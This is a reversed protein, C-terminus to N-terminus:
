TSTEEVLTSSPLSHSRFYVRYDGNGLSQARAQTQMMGSFPVGKGSNTRRAPSGRQLEGLSPMHPAPSEPRSISSMAWLLFTFSRLQAFWSAVRQLLAPPCMDANAFTVRVGGASWKSVTFILMDVPQTQKGNLVVWFSASSSVTQSLRSDDPITGVAISCFIEGSVETAIEM